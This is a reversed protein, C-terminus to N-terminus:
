ARRRALVHSALWGIGFGIMAGAIKTLADMERGHRDPRLQQLWELGVAAVIIFALAWWIHRPYAIAFAIGAALYAGAREINVPLQTQPRLGIPSLTVGVIIAFVTWALIKTLTRPTM